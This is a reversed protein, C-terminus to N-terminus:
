WCRRNRSRQRRRRLLLVLGWVLPLSQSSCGCGQAPKPAEAPLPLPRSITMIAPAQHPQRLAVLWRSSSGPMTGDAPFFDASPPEDETLFREVPLDLSNVIGDPVPFFTSFDSTPHVSQRAAKLGQGQEYLADDLSWGLQGNIKLPHEGVGEIKGDVQLSVEADGLVTLVVFSSGTYSLVLRKHLESRWHWADHRAENISSVPQVLVGDVWAKSRLSFAEDEDDAPVWWLGNEDASDALSLPLQWHLDLRLPAQAHLVDVVALSGSEHHFVLRRLHAEPQEGGAEARAVLLTWGPGLDDLSDTVVEGFALGGPTLIYGGEESPDAPTLGGNGDDILRPVHPVPGQPGRGNLLPMSHHEPSAVPRRNSWGLYGPDILRWRGHRFWMLSLPASQNHGATGQIEDGNQDKGQGASRGHEAQMLLLEQRGSHRLGLQGSLYDEILDHESLQHDDAGRLRFALVEAARRGGGMSAPDLKALAQAPPTPIMAFPFWAGPTTDDFPAFYPRTAPVRMRAAWAWSAHMVQCTWPMFGNAGIDCGLSGRSAALMLPLTQVAQYAWYGPGEGYGGRSHSLAHTIREIQRFSELRLPHESVSQDIALRAAGIAAFVKLRHNQNYGRLILGLRETFGLFLDESLAEIGSRLALECPLALGFSLDLAGAWAQLSEASYLSNDLDSISTMYASFDAANVDACLENVFITEDGEHGAAVLMRLAAKAKSRYARSREVVAPREDASLRAAAHRTLDALAAADIADAPDIASPDIPLLIGALVLASISM